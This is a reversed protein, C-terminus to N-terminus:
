DLELSVSLRIAILFYLLHHVVVLLVLFDADIAKIVAFHEAVIYLAVLGEM